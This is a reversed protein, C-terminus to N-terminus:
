VVVFPLLSEYKDNIGQFDFVMDGTKGDINSSSDSVPLYQSYINVPSLKGYRNKFKLPKLITGLEKVLADQLALPIM